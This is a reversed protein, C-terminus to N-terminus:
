GAAACRAFLTLSFLLMVFLSALVALFYGYVSAIEAILKEERECGLLKAVSGGLMITIRAFTVSLFTPLFLFFLVIIGGTGATARLFEVSGAVTRLTESISGGVVPLFSGAAFRAARLTVTDAARALTSQVGLVGCLLLMLFSLTLTYTRKIWNGLPRLDVGGALADLLAFTLAIGGVPLLTDAGLTELISLFASLVTSNAVASAVNGGMSFLTAMMPIMAAALTGVTTLLLRVKGFIERVTGFLLLSLALTGCFSLANGLATNKCESVAFRFVAALLLIGCLKVLLSLNDSLAVGGAKGIAGFIARVGSAERVGSAMEDVDASFFSDPLLEAVEPPVSERFDRLTDAAKTEVESAASERASADLPFVCAFLLFFACWIM